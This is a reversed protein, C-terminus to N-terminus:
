PRAPAPAQSAEILAITDYLRTKLEGEPPYKQIFTYLTSLDEATTMPLLADVARRREAADPDLMKLKLFLAAPRGIGALAKYLDDRPAENTDLLKIFFDVSRPDKLAAVGMIAKHRLPSGPRVAIEKMALYGDRLGLDIAANLGAESLVLDTSRIADVIFENMRNDVGGMRGYVAALLKVLPARQAPTLRESHKMIQESLQRPDCALLRRMAAKKLREDPERPNWALDLCVDIQAPIGPTNLLLDALKEDAAADVEGAAVPPYWAGAPQSRIPSIWPGAALLLSLPLIRRLRM